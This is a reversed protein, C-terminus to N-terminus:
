KGAQDDQAQQLLLLEAYDMLKEKNERTMADLVKQWQSETMKPLPQYEQQAILDNRKHLRMEFSAAEKKTSKKINDKFGKSTLLKALDDAFQEEFSKIEQGDERGLLYEITVGFYAALAELTERKPTKGSKKWYASTTKSLGIEMCVASPSTDREKCLSEFIDYFM